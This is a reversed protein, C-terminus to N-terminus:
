NEVHYRLIRNLGCLVLDPTVFIAPKLRNEFLSYDGGCLIVKLDTYISEYQSIMGKIEETAGHIVGIQMCSDTSDGIMPLPTTNNASLLPLRSTFKHMANFRMSIGPSIAGGRYTGGSEVIEYTICSGADIVLCNNKPFMDYAGCAAAIRDVGLTHPTKYTVKIPLALEANLIIKTKSNEVWSIIQHADLNVSSVIVHAPNISQILQKVAAADQLIEKRILKNNEFLAVKVRTNGSDIILNM